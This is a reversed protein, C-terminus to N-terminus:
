LSVSLSVYEDLDIINVSKDNSLKIVQDTEGNKDVHNLTALSNFFQAFSHHRKSRKRPIVNTNSNGHKYNHFDILVKQEPYSLQKVPTQVPLDVALLSKSSNFMRIPIQNIDLYLLRRLLLHIESRAINYDKWKRAKLNLRRGQEIAKVTFTSGIEFIPRYTYDLLMPSLPVDDSCGNPRGGRLPLLEATQLTKKGNYPSSFMLCLIEQFYPGLSAELILYYLTSDYLKMNEIKIIVTPFLITAMLNTGHAIVEVGGEDKSGNLKGIDSYLTIFEINEGDLTTALAEKIDDDYDESWRNLICSPSNAGTSSNFSRTSETSHVCKLSSDSERRSTSINSPSNSNKNQKVQLSPAKLRKRSEIQGKHDIRGTIGNM